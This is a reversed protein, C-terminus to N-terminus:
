GASAGRVEDGVDDAIAQRNQEREIHQHPQYEQSLLKTMRNNARICVQNGFMRHYFLTRPAVDTCPMPMRFRFRQSAHAHIVVAPAASVDFTRAATPPTSLRIRKM